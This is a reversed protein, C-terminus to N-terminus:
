AEDGMGWGEAPCEELLFYHAHLWFKWARTEGNQQKQIDVWTPRKHLQEEKNMQKSIKDDKYIFIVVTADQELSGSGRLDSLNPKRNDYEMERNLQSIALVPIGLELGLRKLVGSIYTIRQNENWRYSGTCIAQANQVFDVTLLKLDHKNKLMRAWAAIAAIDFLQPAVAMPWKLIEPAVQEEIRAIQSEGAYGMNLKPLSVAAERSISRAIAMDLPMDILVRGVFNGRKAAFAAINEEIVSKGQSPRGAVIYLGPRLGGGLADNMKPWPTKLGGEDDESDKANKWCKLLGEIVEKLTRERNGMRDVLGSFTGSADLAVKQPDEAAASLDRVQEACQWITRRLWAAYVQEFYHPGFGPTEMADILGTLYPLGGVMELESTAKLHESLLLVDIGKGEEVMTKLHKWIRLNANNYFAEEPFKLTALAWSVVTYSDAIACGLAGREAELAYMKENMM